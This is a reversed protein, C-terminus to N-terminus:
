VVAEMQGFPDYAEGCGLRFVGAIEGATAGAEFADVTLALLNGSGTKSAELIPQLGAQLRAWDRSEKYAKIREVHATCPPFKSDTLDHLMTDEEESMRHVNVGVVKDEGSAVNQSQREMVCHFIEKFYGRTVLDEIDGQAEIDLVMDWIRKEIEDTLAEVYYSGGLPDAVKTVGSELDIVQQTRLSVLHSERSPTRLAEDFASIEIAQVGALVLSLSQLAGRVINNVPQQATMALGSTHSTIVVSQSRPDNAGFEDRMMRAFLRRTARIKAIEEFFDM